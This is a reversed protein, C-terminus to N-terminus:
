FTFNKLVKGCNLLFTFQMDVTPHLREGRLCRPELRLEEVEQCPVKAVHWRESGESPGLPM